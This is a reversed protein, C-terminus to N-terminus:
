NATKHDFKRTEISIRPPLCLQPVRNPAQMASREGEITQANRLVSVVGAV